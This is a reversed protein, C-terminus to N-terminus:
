GRLALSCSRIQGGEEISDISAGVLQCGSVGRSDAAALAARIAAAVFEADELDLGIPDLAIVFLKQPFVSGM